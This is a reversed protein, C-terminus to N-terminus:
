FPSFKLLSLREVSIEKQEEWEQKFFIIVRWIETSDM